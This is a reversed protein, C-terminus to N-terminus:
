TQDPSTQDPRTQDPRTQDPRTLNLRIQTLRIKDSRNQDIGILEPRTLTLNTIGPCSESHSLRKYGQQRWRGLLGVVM